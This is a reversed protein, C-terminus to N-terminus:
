VLKTVQNTPIDLATLRDLLTTINEKTMITANHEEPLPSAAAAEIARSQHIAMASVLTKVKKQKIAMIVWPVLWLIAISSGVFLYIHVIATFLFSSKSKQSILNKPLTPGLEARPKSFLEKKNHIFLQKQYIIHSLEKLNTPNKNSAKGYFYFNPDKTFDELAIPLVTEEMTPTLPIHSLTGDHWFSHFYDMFALNVTYALTPMKTTNCAAISKLVYTLGIQLHCYCLIDRSVLAYSSTPLPKALGQDYSCILRKPNMM